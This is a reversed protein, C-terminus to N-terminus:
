RVPSDGTMRDVVPHDLPSSSSARGGRAVYPFYKKFSNAPSEIFRWSLAAAVFTVALKVVVIVVTGPRGAVVRRISPGLWFEVLAFLPMSYLYLGYSIKGVFAAPRVGLWRVTTPYELCLAILGGFLYPLAAFAILLRYQPPGVGSAVVGLLGAVAVPWAVKAISRAGWTRSAMALLCGAALPDLNAPLLRYVVAEGGGAAFALSRYVPAGLLPVLCVAMLARQPLVFVIIPWCFYFQEEVALTWTHQMWIPFQLPRFATVLNQVYILFYPADALNWYRGLWNMVMVAGLTLYYIPLIRLARRAYFVGFYQAAREGKVDLLIGTILYGSLVFFLPVGAWGYQSPGSIGTHYLLVFLVALARIGDLTPVRQQLPRPLSSRASLDDSYEGRIQGKLARARGEARESPVSGRNVADVGM